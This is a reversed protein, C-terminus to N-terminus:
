RVRVVKVQSITRDRWNTQSRIQVNTVPDSGDSCITGCTATSAGCACSRSVTLTAGSPRNPWASLALRAAADDNAGGQLYYRVGAVAAAQAGMERSMIQWQDVLGVLMLAFLPAVLAFEVASGGRRDRKFLRLPRLGRM